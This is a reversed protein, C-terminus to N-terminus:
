LLLADEAHHQVGGAGHAPLQQGGGQAGDGAVALGPIDVMHPHHETVGGGIVLTDHVRLVDGPRHLHPAPAAGLELRTDVQQLM